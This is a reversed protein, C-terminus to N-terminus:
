EEVRINEPTGDLEGSTSWVADADSDDKVRALSRAEAISKAEELTDAEVVTHVSITVDAVLAFKPM